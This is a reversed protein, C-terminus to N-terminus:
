HGPMGPVLGRTLFDSYLLAMMVCFLWALAVTMIVVTLKPSHNLHMFFVVVLSAKALGIGLGLSAHWAGSLPLFSVGVTAFTLVILTVLVYVYTKVAVIPEYAM